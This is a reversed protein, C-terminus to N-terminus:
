DWLVPNTTAGFWRGELRDQGVVRGSEPEIAVVFGSSSFGFLRGEAFGLGFLRDLGAAGVRVLEGTQPDIRIVEDGDVEGRVTWYLKGDPLGVIDGSTEYGSAQAFELLVRGDDPDVASVRRGAIVLRGDPLFTMGHLIDDFEFLFTCRADTPDIRYVRNVMRDGDLESSGGFMRGRTDIAIDVMQTIPGGRTAFDAVRVAANDAHRYSFLTGGTHIYIPEPAPPPPEETGADPAGADVPPPETGLDSPGSDPPDPSVFLADKECAPLAAALLLTLVRM